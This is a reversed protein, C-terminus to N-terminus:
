TRNRRWRDQFSPVIHVAYGCQLLSLLARASPWLAAMTDPAPLLGRMWSLILAMRCSFGAPRRLGNWASEGPPPDQPWDEPLAHLRLALGMRGPRRRAAPTAGCRSVGAFTAAGSVSTNRDKKGSREEFGSM